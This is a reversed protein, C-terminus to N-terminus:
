GRPPTTFTAAVSTQEVLSAEARDLEARAAPDADTASTRAADVHKRAIALDRDLAAKQEHWAAPDNADVTQKLSDLSRGVADVDRLALTISDRAREAPTTKPASQTSTSGSTTTSAYNSANGDRSAYESM